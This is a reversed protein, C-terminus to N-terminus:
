KSANSNRFLLNQMHDFNLLLISMGFSKIFKYNVNQKLVFYVLRELELCYGVAWYWNTFGKKDTYKFIFM